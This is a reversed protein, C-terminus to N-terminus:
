AAPAALPEPSCKDDPLPEGLPPLDFDPAGIEAARAMLANVKDAVLGPAKKDIHQRIVLYPNYILAYSDPGAPGGKLDIFGLEHLLRVRERWMRVGRQGTFGAQFAMEQHRLTVVCEHDWSQCWIELYAMSAPKGKSLDDIISMILPMARPINRYGDHDATWIDKELLDPWLRARLALKSEKAKKRAKQAAFKNM